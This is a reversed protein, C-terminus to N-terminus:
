HRTGVKVATEEDPSLHVHQRSQARLGETRIPDLFRTATGHFLHEPPMTPPLDLDVEVSHGQSARIRRSDESFACRKKDNTEVVQRLSELTIPRGAKAAAALLEDVSVWGNADLSIGIAEPEHRLVLSLFKSLRVLSPDM